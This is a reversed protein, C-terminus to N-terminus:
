SVNWLNFTITGNGKNSPHIGRAWLDQQDKFYTPTTLLIHSAEHLALGVYVDFNTDKVDSSIVIKDFDTYSTNGTFTVPINKNTLIKVFNAIARRYSNMKILKVLDSSHSEEGTLGSFKSQKSSYWDDIGMWFDSYNRNKNFKSPKSSKGLKIGAINTHKAM